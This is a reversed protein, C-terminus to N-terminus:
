SCYEMGSTPIAANLTPVRSLSFTVFPACLAEEWGVGEWDTATGRQEPAWIRRQYQGRDTVFFSTCGGATRKITHLGKAEICPLDQRLCREKSAKNRECKDDKNAKKRAVVM